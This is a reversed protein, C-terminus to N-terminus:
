SLSGFQARGTADLIPMAAVDLSTPPDPWIRIALGQREFPNEVQPHFAIQFEALHGSALQFGVVGTEPDGGTGVAMVTAHGHV